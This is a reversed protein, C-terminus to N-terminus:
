KLLHYIALAGIVFSSIDLIRDGLMRIRLDQNFYQETERISGALFGMLAAGPYSHFILVPLLLIAGYVGHLLQDLLNAWGKRRPRWPRKRAAKNLIQHFEEPSHNALLELVSEVSKDISQVTDM